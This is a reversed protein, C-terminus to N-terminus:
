LQESGLLEFTDLRVYELPRLDPRGDDRLKAIFKRASEETSYELVTSRAWGERKYKVIFRQTM